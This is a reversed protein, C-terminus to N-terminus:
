RDREGERLAIGFYAKAQARGDGALVLKVHSLGRLLLRPVADLVVQQHGTWDLLAAHKAPDLLGGDSLAQWIGAWRHERHPQRSWSGSRFNPEIGIHPLVQAAVDFHLGVFDCHPALVTIWRELAARDGTWGIAELYAPLSALPLDFICLRVAQIPRSLMVGIQFDGTGPPCARFARDLSNHLAASYAGDFLEPLVTGQMWDWARTTQTDDPWYGFLLNPAPDAEGSDFELWTSPADAFPDVHTQEWQRYFRGIRQWTATGSGLADAALLRAGNPSLNLACDTSQAAAEGLRCEFGFFQVADLPFLAGVRRSHDFSTPSMLSPPLLPAIQDFAAALTGPEVVPEASLSRM